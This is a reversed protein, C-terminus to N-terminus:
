DRYKLVMYVWASTLVGFIVLFVPQIAIEAYTEASLYGHTNRMVMTGRVIM